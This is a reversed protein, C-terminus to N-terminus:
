GSTTVNFKMGKEKLLIQVFAASQIIQYEIGRVPMLNIEEGFSWVSQPDWKGEQQIVMLPTKGALYFQLTHIQSSAEMQHRCLSHTSNDAREVHRRARSMSQKLEHKTFAEANVNLGRALSETYSPIYLLRYKSYLQTLCIYEKEVLLHQSM